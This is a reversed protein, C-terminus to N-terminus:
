VIVLLIKIFLLKRFYNNYKVIIYYIIDLEIM